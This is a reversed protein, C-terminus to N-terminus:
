AGPRLMALNPLPCWAGLQPYDITVGVVGHERFSMAWDLAAPLPVAFLSVPEGSGILGNAEACEKARTASSFVCLMPGSEAALMYPRPAEATGRNIGVWFGLAAVARWLEMQPEIEGPRARGERDLRDIEAVAEPAPELADRTPDEQSSHDTSMGGVYGASCSADWVHHIERVENRVRGDRLVDDVLM